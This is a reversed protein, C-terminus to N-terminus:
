IPRLELEASEQPTEAVRPDIAHDSAPPYSLPGQSM